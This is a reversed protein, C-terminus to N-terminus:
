DFQHSGVERGCEDLMIIRKGKAYPNQRGPFAKATFDIMWALYHQYKEGDFNLRALCNFIIEISLADGSWLVAGDADVIAWMPESPLLTADNMKM